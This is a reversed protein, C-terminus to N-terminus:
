SAHSDCMNASDCNEPFELKLNKEKFGSDPKCYSIGERRGPGHLTSLEPTGPPNRFGAPGGHQLDSAPGLGTRRSEPDNKGSQGFRPSRSAATRGARPVRRTPVGPRRPLLNGPHPSAGLERRSTPNPPCTHCLAQTQDEGRARERRREKISGGWTLLQLFLRKDASGEDDSLSWGANIM